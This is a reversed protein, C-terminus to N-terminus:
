LVLRGTAMLVRALNVRTACADVSDSRGARVLIDLNRRFLPEAEAYQKDQYYAHGLNGMIVATYQHEPGRVHEEISLAEAIYPIAKKMDGLDEEAFGLEDLMNSVDSHPKGDYAKRLIDLRPTLLAVVEAAKGGRFNMAQALSVTANVTNPHNKGYWFERTVIVKRYYEEAKAYHGQEAEIVGLNMYDNAVAPHREGHWQSDIRLLKQFGATAESYEGKHFRLTNLAGYVDAYEGARGPDKELSAVSQTLLPAAEAYQGREDLVLGLVGKAYAVEYSTAATHRIEMALATRAAKEAAPLDAQDFKLRAEESLLIGYEISDATHAGATASKAILLVQEAKSYRSLARYARELALALDAQADNDDKLAVLKLQGRDLLQEARLDLSPGAGGENTFVDILTERFRIAREAEFRAKRSARILSAGYASSVLLAVIGAMVELRRRQWFKRLRYGTPPNELCATIQGRKSFVHIVDLRLERVTAYRNERAVDIGKRCIQDLEQWQLRTADSHLQTLSSVPEPTHNLIVWLFDEPGPNAGAPAPYPKQQSILEFLLLGLGWIDVRIDIPDRKLQEPAASRPTFGTTGGVLDAPREIAKSIGFDLLKLNGKPDVLVNSNKIDRHILLNSHAAEVADCLKGFLDLRAELPLNRKVCWDLLPEADEVYEMAFWPRGDEEDFRGWDVLSAINPHKLRALNAVESLFPNAEDGSDHRAWFVKVAVHRTVGEHEQDYLWVRGQGGSSDTQGPLPRRNRFNRFEHPPAPAPEMIAGAQTPGFRNSHWSKADAALLALALDALEIDGLCKQTIFDARLAPDPLALAEEVLEQAFRYRRPDM